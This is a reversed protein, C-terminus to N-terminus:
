DGRVKETEPWNVDSPKGYKVFNQFNKAVYESLLPDANGTVYVKTLAHYLPSSRTKTLNWVMIEPTTHWTRSNISTPATMTFHWRPGSNAAKKSAFMYSGLNFGNDEAKQQEDHTNM